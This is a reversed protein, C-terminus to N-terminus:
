SFTMSTDWFFCPNTILFNHLTVSLFINAITPSRMTTGHIQQFCLGAFQFYNYNVNIHLLRIILNPDALILHRKELMQEYVIKLCKSQPILPYLSEVDITVLIANEPIDITQLRLILSTSNHLYDEFSQALPQLM